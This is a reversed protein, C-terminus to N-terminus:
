RVYRAAGVSVFARGVGDGVRQWVAPRIGRPFPAGRERKACVPLMPRDTRSPWAQRHARGRPSRQTPRRERTRPLFQRLCNRAPGPPPEGRTEEPAVSRPVQAQQPSIRRPGCPPIRAKACPSSALLFQPSSFADSTTPGQVPLMSPGPRDLSDTPSEPIRSLLCFGPGCAFKSRLCVGPAKLRM